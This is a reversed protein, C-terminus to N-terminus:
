AGVRELQEWELGHPVVPMQVVMLADKGRKKGYWAIVGPEPRYRPRLGARYYTRTVKENLCILAGGARWVRSRTSGVMVGVETSELQKGEGRAQMLIGRVKSVRLDFPKGDPNTLPKPKPISKFLDGRVMVFRDTIWTSGKDTVVFRTEPDILLDRQAFKPGSM